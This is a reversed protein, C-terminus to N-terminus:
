PTTKINTEDVPAESRKEPSQEPPSIGLLAPKGTALNSLIRPVEQNDPNLEKIRTFQEIADQKRGEKDYVLGLFYRANSYNPNLTVARELAVRSSDFDKDQYYLLGLQFLVGVDDPALYLTQETRKIAEKLNGEQAEIQSLLFVAPAYDSKIGLSEDLFSRASKTDDTQLEARAAAFLPRPDFPARVLAEKYANVAAESAGTIKLPAVAEYIQGLSMWNLFDLPNIVTANRANNVTTALLNQFQTRLDEASLDTRNMLQQIKSIGIQSLMRYYIDQSDFRVARNVLNEAENIDGGGASLNVAAGYSYAAWYKQFLLYLSAISSIMLLMVVLSSIFGTKPRGSFIVEIIKIKGSRCLLAIFIGTILFALATILFSPVYVVAFVWLYLSGLFSAILLGRLTENESYNIIKLGYFLIFALFALWALGTLVGGTALFSPLLGIGATFPYAWFTTSNIESPKFKLWDYLFTNPGSGLLVNEKWSGKIVEWTASWAPRVEISSIGLSSVFDGVLAKAMIFFIVILLAIIAFRIFRAPRREAMPNESPQSASISRTSFLYVIFVLIFIGLIIWIATFNVFVIALLSIGLVALFLTKMLKSLRFLELFVLSLLAMLGFFIGVENWSGITNSIKSIFINWPYLSINLGSRFIQFVFVFLSSVFLTIYFAMARKESQFFVSVIFLAAGFLVLSFLTGTEYGYGILSLNVNSSFLSSFLTVIVIGGLALLAASKPIRFSAKQLISIFWALAALLTIFYFLFAKNLGLPFSTYPLVWLPLILALFLFLYRPINKLIAENM